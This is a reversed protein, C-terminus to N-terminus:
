HNPETDATDASDRVVAVVPEINKAACQQAQNEGNIRTM